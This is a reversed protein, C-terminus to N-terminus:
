CAAPELFVYLLGPWGLATWFLGSSCGGLGCRLLELLVGLCGPSGWSSGLLDGHPGWSVGLVGGPAGLQGMLRFLDALLAALFAGLRM